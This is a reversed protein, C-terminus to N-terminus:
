DFCTECCSNALIKIPLLGVRSTQRVFSRYYPFRKWEMVDDPHYDGSEYRDDTSRRALM